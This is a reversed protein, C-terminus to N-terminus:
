LKKRNIKHQELMRQVEARTYYIKKGIKYYTITRNRRWRELTRNSVLLAQLMDQRDLLKDFEPQQHSSNNENELNM